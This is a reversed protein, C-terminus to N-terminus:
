SFFVDDDIEIEDEETNNILSLSVDSNPFPNEQLTQKYIYFLPLASITLLFAFLGFTLKMGILDVLMLGIM